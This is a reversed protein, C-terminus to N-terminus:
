QEKLAIYRQASIIRFLDRREARRGAWRGLRYALYVGLAFVMLQADDEKWDTV